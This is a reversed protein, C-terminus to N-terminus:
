QHLQPGLPSLDSSSRLGIARVLVEGLVEDMGRVPLFTLADVVEQPLLELEGANDAPIIVTTIGNRMAAVTKEKIGGVALVRGRLTIEGTMAVERRTPVGTLASIIASAITIGASPGDKPTAGEPIHIHIDVDKYFQADLGLLEARSRAYTMAAKASEKMVDGLTGTLEIKGSGPLVAVEVDLVEGGAETWALGNAIGSRNGEDERGPGQYPPPGLLGRLDDPGVAAEPLVEGAAKRRALKRAVRSLRRDLERVGAERTYRDIVAGAGEASLPTEAVAM